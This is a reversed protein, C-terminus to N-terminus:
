YLVCLNISSIKICDVSLKMILDYDYVFLYM